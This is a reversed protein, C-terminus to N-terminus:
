DDGVVLSLSSFETLASEVDRRAQEESVDPFAECLQRALVELTQPSELTQWVVAASRNLLCFKNTASNFLVTEDAM